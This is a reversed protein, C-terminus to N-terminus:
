RLRNTFKEEYIVDVWSIRETPDLDALIILRFLKWAKGRKTGIVYFNIGDMSGLLMFKVAGRAYQGRIKIDTITKLVDPAGLDFPRTAIVGRTPIRSDAADLITSLDYICTFSEEGTKEEFETAVNYTDMENALWEHDDEHIGTVDIVGDMDLFSQIERDSLEPMKVRIRGALYDFEEQSNYEVVKWFTRTVEKKKQGQVMCEPYSNIPALLDIGYATKHWTQTDLKYVYQYKEDKKIFVLRQGPYDYAITAERVFAMFHTSDSLIPLLDKFFEEEAIISQAVREISARTEQQSISQSVENQIVQAMQDVPTKGIKAITDEITKELIVKATEEITYHRGNMNPSINVVQSGQLLMVGKDTVFIVANDISTISDPNVCVDRSLPKSTVFSGDAATEMAWIGDETFVYLPFQGFQGQSLASTAIAVGLISSQLTNRRGAPFVFPNNMESMMVQNTVEYTKKESFDYEVDAATPGDEIFEDLGVFAYSVSLGPHQSMPIQVVDGGGTFLDVQYCNVDPYSIWAMPRAYWHKELASPAGNSILPTVLDFGGQPNRAMISYEEGNNRRMRFKMQYTKPEQFNDYVADLRSNCFLGNLLPYPNPMEIKAANVLLSNNYLEMTRPIVKHSTMYDPTLREQVVLDEAQEVFDQRHLDIGAKLSDLDRVAISEIKYFLVKSLVEEKTKEFAEDYGKFYVKGGGNDCTAFSENINPFAIDTSIFIDVGEIIDEWGEVEWSVLKAIARYFLNISYTLRLRTGDPMVPGSAATLWEKEGAGILIPASHYVYSGDYLKIAYRVLRPCSFHGWKGIKNKLQQVSAWFNSTMEQFAANVDENEAVGRAAEEWAGKEFSAIATMGPISGDAGPIRVGGGDKGFFTEDNNGVVEIQIAPVPLQNGIYVYETAKWLVYYVSESTAIIVINGVANIDNVSEGFSLTALLHSKGDAYAIVKNEFQAVYHEYNAAKHVFVKEAQLDDPLGLEKTVDEPIFSPALESHDLSVNLSEACGGDETMRDSPTRSIGRLQIRSIKGM